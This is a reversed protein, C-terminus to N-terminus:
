LLVRTYIHFPEYACWYGICVANILCREPLVHILLSKHDTLCLMCCYIQKCMVIYHIVIFVHLLVCYISVTYM